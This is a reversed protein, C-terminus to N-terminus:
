ILKNWGVWNKGILCDTLVSAMNSRMAWDILNHIKNFLPNSCSFSGTEPAALCTHVGALEM